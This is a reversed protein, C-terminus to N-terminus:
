PNTHPHGLCQTLVSPALKTRVADVSAQCQAAPHVLQGQKLGLDERSQHRTTRADIVKGLAAKLAVETM